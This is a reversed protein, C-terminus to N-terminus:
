ATAKRKWIHFRGCKKCKVQYHRRAKREAWQHWAVYAQPEGANPKGTCQEAPSTM